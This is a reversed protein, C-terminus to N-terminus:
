KLIGSYTTISKNISDYDYPDQALSPPSIGVAIYYDQTVSDHM